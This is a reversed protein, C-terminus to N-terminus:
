TCNKLILKCKIEVFTATRVLVDDPKREVHGKRIKKCSKDAKQKLRTIPDTTVNVYARAIAVDEDGTYNTSRKSM